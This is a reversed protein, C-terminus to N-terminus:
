RGGPFLVPGGRIGGAHPLPIDRLAAADESPPRRRPLFQDPERQARVPLDRRVDAGTSRAAAGPDANAAPREVFGIGLALELAREGSGELGAVHFHGSVEAFPDFGRKALLREIPQAEFGSAAGQDVTGLPDLLCSAGSLHVHKDMGRVGALIAVAGEVLGPAYATTWGLPQNKGEGAGDQRHRKAALIHYM